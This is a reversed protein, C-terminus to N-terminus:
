VKVAEIIEQELETDVSFHKKIKPILRKKRADASERAVERKVFPFGLELLRGWRDVSPNQWSQGVLNWPFLSGVYLGASQATVSLGIEYTRVLDFKSEQVHIEKWFNQVMKHQFSGNKFHVMFSQIHYRIQNSDTVGTVDYPSNELENIFEGISSFPGILSDNIIIVQETDVLKPLMQIATSWSGFDYGINPKRIVTIQNKLGNKMSLQNVSECSSVLVVSYKAEILSDITREASASLKESESWHAFIAIKRNSIDAM